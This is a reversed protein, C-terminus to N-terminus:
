KCPVAPRTPDKPDLFQADFLPHIEWLTAAKHGQKGRSGGPDSSGSHATDYFLQGTLRMRVPHQICTGNSMSFEKGNKMKERLLARLAAVKQRLATDSVFDPRPIEMIVVRDRNDREASVQIHYDGDTRDGNSKKTAEVAILQVYGITSVIDGEQLHSVNDERMPQDAFTDRDHLMSEPPQELQRLRTFAIRRPKQELAGPLVSTKIRWRAVGPAFTPEQAVATAAVAFVVCVIAGARLSM